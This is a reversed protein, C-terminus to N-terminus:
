RFETDTKDSHSGKDLHYFPLVSVSLVSLSVGGGKQFINTFFSCDFTAGLIQADRSMASFNHMGLFKGM